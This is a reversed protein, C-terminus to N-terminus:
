RAHQLRPQHGADRAGSVDRAPEARAACKHGHGHREPQPALLGFAGRRYRLPDSNSNYYLRGTDDQTIGWQGRTITGERAFKGAGEYRFRATFNASYIWNDMMWVLGNANHEPNTQNGYDKAVETKQDMVGDGNTDRMFWLTPPEAVLVGDGILSMARPMVLGTAFETRKDMRGDGDTDELTAIIGLPQM